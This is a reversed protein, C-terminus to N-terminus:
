TSRRVIRRAQPQHTRVGVWLGLTPRNRDYVVYMQIPLVVINWCLNSLASVATYVALPRVKRRWSLLYDGWLRQPTQIKLVCFHRHARCSRKECEQQQKQCNVKGDRIWTLQMGSWLISDNTPQKSCQSHVSSRCIAVTMVKVTSYVSTAAAEASERTITTCSQRFPGLM